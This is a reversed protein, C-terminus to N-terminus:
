PPKAEYSPEPTLLPLLVVKRRASMLVANEFTVLSRTGCKLGVATLNVTATSREHAIARAM